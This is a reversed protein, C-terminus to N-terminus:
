RLEFTSRNEKLETLWNMYGLCYRNETEFRSYYGLLVRIYIVTLFKSIIFIYVSSYGSIHNVALLSAFAILIFFLYYFLFYFIFVHIHTVQVLLVNDCNIVILDCQCWCVLERWTLYLILIKWYVSKWYIYIYKFSLGQDIGLNIWRYAFFFLFFFGSRTWSVDALRQNM